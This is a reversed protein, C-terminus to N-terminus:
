LNREYKSFTGKWAKARSIVEENFGDPIFVVINSDNVAAYIYCHSTVLYKICHKKYEEMIIKETYCLKDQIDKIIVDYLSNGVLVNSFYMVEGLKRKFHKDEIYLAKFIKSVIEKEQYNGVILNYLLGRHKKITSELFYDKLVYLLDIRFVAKERLIAGTYQEIGATEIFGYATQYDQAYANLYYLKYTM